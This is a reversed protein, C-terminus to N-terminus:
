WGCLRILRRMQRFRRSVDPDLLVLNTGGSREPAYRGKAIIPLQSLDYEDKLRYDDSEQIM